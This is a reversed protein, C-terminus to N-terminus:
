KRETRASAQNSFDSVGDDNFARIRYSFTSNKKLAFDVFSTVNSAVLIQEQRPPSFSVRTIEQGTENMANDQWSLRIESDSLVAVELNSPAAPPLEPEPEPEKIEPTVVSALNSPTSRAVANYAMVRWSISRGGIDGRITDIFIRETLPIPEGIDRWEGDNDVMQQMVFGLADGGTGKEWTWDLRYTCDQETTSTQTCAAQADSAFFLILAIFLIKM